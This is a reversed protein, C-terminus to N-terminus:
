QVNMIKKLECLETQFKREEEIRREGEIRLLFSPHPM